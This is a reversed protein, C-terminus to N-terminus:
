LNAALIARLEELAAEHQGSDKYIDRIKFRIANRIVPDNGYKELAKRLEPVAKEPEGKQEYIEAIGELAFFAVTHKNSVMKVWNQSLDLYGGMADVMQKMQHASEPAAEERGGHVTYLFGGGMAVALAVAIMWRCNARLM